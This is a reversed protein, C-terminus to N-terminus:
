GSANQVVGRFCLGQLKGRKVLSIHALSLYTENVFIVEWKSTKTYTGKLKKVEKKRKDEHRTTGGRALHWIVLHNIFYWNRNVSVIITLCLCWFPADKKSYKTYYPDDILNSPEIKCCLRLYNVHNVIFLIHMQWDLKFSTLMLFM